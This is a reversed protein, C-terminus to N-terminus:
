DCSCPPAKEAFVRKLLIMMPCQGMFGRITLGLGMIGGLAYYSTNDYHSGLYVGLSLVLPAFAFSFMCYTREFGGDGETEAGLKACLILGGEVVIVKTYGCQELISAATRSRAGSRCMIYVPRDKDPMLRKLSCCNMQDLPIHVNETKLRAKQFEESTRVDLIYKEGDQGPIKLFVDANMIETM